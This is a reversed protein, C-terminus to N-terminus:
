QIVDSRQRSGHMVIGGYKIHQSPMVSEIRAAHCAGANIVGREGPFAEVAQADAPELVEVVVVDLSIRLHACGDIGCDHFHLFEARLDSFDFGHRQALELGAVADDHTRLGVGDVLFPQALPRLIVAVDGTLAKQVARHVAGTIVDVGQAHAALEGRVEM